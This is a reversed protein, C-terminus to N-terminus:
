PEVNQMMKILDIKQGLVKQGEPTTGEDFIQKWFDTNRKGGFVSTAMDKNVWLPLRRLARIFNRVNNWANNPLVKQLPAKEDFPTGSTVFATQIVQKVLRLWNYIIEEKSMRYAALHAEPIDEGKSVKSEIRSTGIDLDFKGIFIEEAIINMLMVMQEVELMRPNLGEEARHNLRTALLDAGIFFSYFTKEVTSYSLPFDYGRGGYEIFDLLKNEKHQTISSRIGDLIYRKMEREGKFHRQLDQESFDESEEPLSRDKRYREIRDALLASGLSRQVSKDFAVQRLTTGALTNATLLVDVDPDVFVRVPLAEAGLMIQAAAKHQGDFIRVEAQAGEETSLWGLAVHLQPRRTHFEKILKKINPGIARPNLKSDHQIYGIPLQAFFFKFGSLKDEYLPVSQIENSGVGPLSYSLKSGEISVPFPHSSTRFAKLVDGLNAARSEHAVSDNIHDFRAMLRAVRLDSDQKGRNCSDHTLAFNGPNDPGNLSTPIVHDIDISDKHLKLDIPKACIFCNGTQRDHLDKLLTARDEPALRNLYLSAM